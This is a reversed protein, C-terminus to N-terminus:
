GRAAKAARRLNYVCQHRQTIGQAKICVWTYPLHTDGQAIRNYEAYAAEMGPFAQEVTGDCGDIRVSVTYM